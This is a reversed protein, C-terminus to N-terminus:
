RRDRNADQPADRAACKGRYLDRGYVCLRNHTLGGRSRVSPRNKMHFGIQGNGSQDSRPHGLETERAAFKYLSKAIFFKAFPIRRISTKHSPSRSPVFCKKSTSGCAKSVDASVTFSASSWVTRSISNASFCSASARSLIQRSFKQGCAMMRVSRVTGLGIKTAAIMPTSFSWGPFSPLHIEDRCTSDARRRQTCAM